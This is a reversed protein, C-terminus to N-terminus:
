RPTHPPVKPLGDKTLLINETKVDRHVVPTIASAHLYELGQAARAAIEFRQCATPLESVVPLSEDSNNKEPHLRAFLSGGECLEFILCRYPGDETCIALLCCLSRHQYKKCVSIEQLEAEAIAKRKRMESEDCEEPGCISVRRKKNKKVAVTLPMDNLFDILAADLPEKQQSLALKPEGRYVEAFGGTGLHRDVSFGETMAAVAWYPLQTM